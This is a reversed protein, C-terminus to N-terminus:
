RQPHQVEPGRRDRERTGWGPWHTCSPDVPQAQAESAPLMIVVAALGVGFLRSFWRVPNREM